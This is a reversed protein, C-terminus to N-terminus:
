NLPSSGKATDLFEQLFRPDETRTENLKQHLHSQLNLIANYFDQFDRSLQQFHPNNADLPISLEKAIKGLTASSIEGPQNASQLRSSLADLYKEIRLFDLYTKQIVDFLGKELTAKPIEQQDLDNAMMKHNGGTYIVM